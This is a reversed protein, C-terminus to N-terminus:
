NREVSKWFKGPGTAKKWSKGTRSFELIFNWSKGPKGPGTRVRPKNDDRYVVIKLNGDILRYNQGHVFYDLFVTCSSRQHTKQKSVCQTPAVTKEANEKNM